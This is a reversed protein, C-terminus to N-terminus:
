ASRMVRFNGYRAFSFREVIEGEENVLRVTGRANIEFHENAQATRLAGSRLEIGTITTDETFHPRDRELYAEVEEANFLKRNGEQTFTWAQRKALASARQKTAGILEAVEKLTYKSNM